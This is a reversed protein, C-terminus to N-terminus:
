IEKLKALPKLEVQLVGCVTSPAPLPTSAQSATLAHLTIQTLNRALAASSINLGFFVRSKSSKRICFM